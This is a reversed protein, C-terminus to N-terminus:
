AGHTSGFSAGLAASVGGAGAAVLHLLVVAEQAARVAGNKEQGEVM